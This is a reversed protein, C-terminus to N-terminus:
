QQQGRMRQWSVDRKLWSRGHTRCCFEKSQQNHISTWTWPDIASLIHWLSSFFQKKIPKHWFTCNDILPESGLFNLYNEFITPHQFTYRVQSHMCLYYTQVKLYCNIENRLTKLVILPSMLAVSYKKVLHSQDLYEIWLFCM